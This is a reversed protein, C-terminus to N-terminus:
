RTFKCSLLGLSLAEPFSARSIFWWSSSSLYFSNISKWVPIIQIEIVQNMDSWMHFKDAAITWEIVTQFSKGQTNTGRRSFLGHSFYFSFPSVRWKSSLTQFGFSWELIPLISAYIQSATNVINRPWSAELFYSSVLWRFDFKSLIHFYIDSCSTSWIGASAVRYRESSSSLIQFSSVTWDVFGNM